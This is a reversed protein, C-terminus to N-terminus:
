KIKLSLLNIGLCIKIIFNEEQEEGEQIKVFKSLSFFSRDCSSSTNDFSVSYNLNLSSWKLMLHSVINDVSLFIIM